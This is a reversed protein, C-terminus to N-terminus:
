GSLWGLAGTSDMKVMSLNKFFLDIQQGVKVFKLTLSKKEEKDVVVPLTM